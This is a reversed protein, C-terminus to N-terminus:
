SLDSGCTKVVHKTCAFLDTEDGFESFSLKSVLMWNSVSELQIGLM